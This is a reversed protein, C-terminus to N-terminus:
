IKTAGSGRLWKSVKVYFDFTPKETGYYEHSIAPVSLYEELQIETWNMKKLFHEIDDRLIQENPYPPHKMQELAEERTIQGSCILNSFHLKRKDIKFKRPLIYGQYFRTFLSEYHKYPYPQFDIEKKLIEIANSKNYDVYDLFSVWKIGNVFKYKIYDMTGISFPITKIKLAGLKKHINRINKADYKFWNWGKPVRMGETSTNTGALIFKLGHKKAISYLFAALANDTLIEIDLVHAKFFSLQLDRFEPWDVRHTYLEIGLKQVLNKINHNALEDNWCNDLHVVLPRLGLKKIMYLAYSSDIGGSIGVLCDYDKGKGQSQVKELLQELTDKKKDSLGKEEGPRKLYETCFNCFSNEDFTIEDATTDMICRKCVQYEKM